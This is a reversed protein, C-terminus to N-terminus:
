WHSLGCLCGPEERCRGAIHHTVLAPRRLACGAEQCLQQRDALAPPLPPVGQGQGRSLSIPRSQWVGSPLSDHKQSQRAARVLQALRSPCLSALWGWTAKQLGASQGAGVVGVFLTQFTGATRPLPPLKSAVCVVRGDQSSQSCM